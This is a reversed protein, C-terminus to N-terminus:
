FFVEHLDLHFLVFGMVGPLPFTMCPVFISFIGRQAREFASAALVGTLSARTQFQFPPSFRPQFCSFAALFCFLGAKAAMRTRVYAQFTKRKVM